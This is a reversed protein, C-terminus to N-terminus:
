FRMFMKVRIETETNATGIETELSTAPEIDWKIGARMRPDDGLTGGFYPTLTGFDYALQGSIYTKADADNLQRNLSIQGTMNEDAFALGIEGESDGNVTSEMNTSVTVNNYVLDVGAGIIMESRNEIDGGHQEYRIRASPAISVPDAVFTYSGVLESRVRHSHAKSARFEATDASESWIWAADNNFKVEGTSAGSGKILDSRTGLALMRSAVDAETRIPPEGITEVSLSGMAYGAIGWLATRPTARWEMYPYVGAMDGTLKYDGFKGTANNAALAVGARIRENAYDNGIIAGTLEGTVSESGFSDSLAKAWAGGATEPNQGLRDAIADVVILASAHGYEALWVRPIPDNNVIRILYTIKNSYGLGAGSNFKSGASPQYFEILFFENSDNVEDDHIEVTLTKETEGSEFVVRRPSVQTYDRSSDTANGARAGTRDPHGEAGTKWWFSRATERDDEILQVRLQVQGTSETVKLDPPNDGYTHTMKPTIWWAAPAPAFETAATPHCKQPTGDEWSDLIVKSVQNNSSDPKSLVSGEDVRVTVTKNPDRSGICAVITAVKSREGRDFHVYHGGYPRKEGSETIWLSVHNLEYDTLGSRTARVDFEVKKGFVRQGPILSLSIRPLVDQMDNDIIPLVLHSASRKVRYNKKMALLIILESDPNDYPDDPIQITFRHTRQGARANWWHTDDITGGWPRTVSWDVRVGTIPLAGSTRTLLVTVQGGERVSSLDGVTSIAIEDYDNDTVTVSASRTGVVYGTGNVLTISLEIDPEDVDNSPTAVVFTVTNENAGMNITKDTYIGTAGYKERYRITIAEFDHAYGSRRIVFRAEEGEEIPNQSRLEVSLSANDDDNVKVEIEPTTSVYGWGGNDGIAVVVTAAQEDETDNETHLTIDVRNQGQPFRIDSLTRSAETLMRGGFERVSLPITLERSVDGIRTAELRITEGETVTASHQRGSLSLNVLDPTTDLVRITQTADRGVDFKGTQGTISAQIIGDNERVDDHITEVRTVEALREWGAFTVDVTRDGSQDVMAHAGTTDVRVPVTLQDRTVPDREVLITIEDGEDITRAAPGVFSITPVPAHLNVVRATAIDDDDVVYGTGNEVRLHVMSNHAATASTRVNILKVREHPALALTTPLVQDVLVGHDAEISIIVEIADPSEGSKSVVFAIYEGANVRSGGNFHANINVDDNDLVTIQGQTSGATRYGEGSLVNLTIESSSEATEDDNTWIDIFALDRGEDLTLTKVGEDNDSVMDGTESIRYRLTLSGSLDGTRLVEFYISDGEYNTWYTEVPQLTMTDVTPTQADAVGVPSGIALGVVMARIIGKLTSKARKQLKSLMTKKGKSDDRPVIVLFRWWAM